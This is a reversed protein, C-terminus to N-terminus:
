RTDLSHLRASTLIYTNYLQKSNNMQMNSFKYM